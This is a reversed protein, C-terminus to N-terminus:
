SASEESKAPCCWNRLRRILFHNLFFDLGAYRGAGTAMLVLLAFMEVSQNYTPAAGTSGPWQSLVVSGLFLAGVVATPRVFLGLLLLSGIVVDFCPIFADVLDIDLFGDGPRRLKLPRRRRQEDNALGNLEAEYENWVGDITRLWPARDKRLEGEIKADHGQLSAVERYAGDAQNNRRRELRHVLYNNIEELNLDFFGQLQKEYRNYAQDAKKIQNEDFGYYNIVQAHYQQWALLTREPDLRAVGDRDPVMGHFMGALPGKANSLFGASSFNPDQIKDVGENFFHWGIGLRLAVLVM